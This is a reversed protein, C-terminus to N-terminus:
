HVGFYKHHLNIKTSYIVQNIELTKIKSRYTQWHQRKGSILIVWMGAGASVILPWGMKM